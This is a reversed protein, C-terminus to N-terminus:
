SIDCYSNKSCCVLFYKIKLSYRIVSIGYDLEDSWTINKHLYQVHHIVYKSFYVLPIFVCRSSWRCLYPQLAMASYQLIFSFPTPFTFLTIFINIPYGNVLCYCFVHLVNLEWSLKNYLLVINLDIPKKKSFEVAIFLEVTKILFHCM